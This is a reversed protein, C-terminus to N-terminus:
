LEMGNLIDKLSKLEEATMDGLNGAVAEAPVNIISDKYNLNIKM